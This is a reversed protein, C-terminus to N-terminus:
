QPCKPRKRRVMVDGQIEISLGPTAAGAAEGPGLLLVGGPALRDAFRRLLNERDEREFYIAVNHCVIADQPPMRWAASDHLNLSEFRVLRRVSENVEWRDGGLARLHREVLPPPVTRVAAGAYRALKAKALSDKCLDTALIEAGLREDLPDLTERCVIALSYAEQGTSCGASWIRIADAGDAKRRRILEPLLTSRLLDFTPPHRFFATERNAIRVLLEDWEDTALPDYALYRYYEGERTMGLEAQRAEISQRLLHVRSPAFTLGCRQRVLDTWLTTESVTRDTAVAVDM